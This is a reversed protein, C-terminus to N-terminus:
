SNTSGSTLGSVGSGGSGMAMTSKFTQPEKKSVFIRFHTPGFLVLALFWFTILVTFGKAATVANTNDELGWGIAAGAVLMLTSNYISMGIAEADNYEQPLNRILFTLVCGALLSAGFLGAFIGWYVTETDCLFHIEDQQEDTFERNVTFGTDATWVILLICIVFMFVAVIQLLFGNDIVKAKLSKRSFLRWLRWTKAFLCSFALTFGLGLLWPYAM